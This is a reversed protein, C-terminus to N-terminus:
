GSPFSPKRRKYSSARGTLSRMASTYCRWGKPKWTASMSPSGCLIASPATGSACACKTGAQPSGPPLVFNTQWHNNERPRVFVPQTGYGSVEPYVQARGVYKEETTFWCCVYDDRQTDFNLGYNRYHVAATLLPAPPQPDPLAAEWTRYCAVCANSGNMGRLVVRAFGATRCMASLCAINPGFWNNVQGGFEDTEYFELRPFGAVGRQREEEGDIVFSDVVAVEKTLACVRELALLPHKLHYLVGLFLVIDFRGINEPSLQYVDMVRYDVKSGLQKHIFLFNPVEVCDIAVVEAGRREMEFSFWGDWAGIDLVRKGRLDQSIPMQGVRTALEELSVVGDLVRGDPLQFSHYWGKKALERSRDLSRRAALFNEIANPM